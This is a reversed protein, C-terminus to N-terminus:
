PHKKLKIDFTKKPPKQEMKRKKFQTTIKSNSNSDDDNDNDHDNHDNACLVAM